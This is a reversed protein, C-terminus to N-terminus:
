GNKIALIDEDQKLNPGLFEYCNKNSKMASLGIEKDERLRGSAFKIIIPKNTAALMVVEKDDRMEPSAFYLIQGTKKLGAMLLEKDNLWLDGNDYPPTPRIVFVRRKNDATDKAANALALADTLDKDIMHKWSYLGNNQQFMYVYGTDKDYYLDGLHQSYEREEWESTPLNSFSPEGSYYYTTVKGDLQKQLEEINSTTKNVFKDLEQNIKTLGVKRKDGGKKKKKFTM